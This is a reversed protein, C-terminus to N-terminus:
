SFALNESLHSRIRSQSDTLQRRNVNLLNMLEDPKKNQKVWLDFLARDQSPLDIYTQRLARQFPTQSLGTELEAKSAIYDKQSAQHRVAQIHKEPLKMYDAIDQDSPTRQLKEELENTARQIPKIDEAKGHPIRVINQYTNLEPALKRGLWNTLYTNIQSKEPSYNTELQKLAINNAMGKVVVRPVRMRGGTLGRGYVSRVTSEVIPEIADLLPETTHPGPDSRWARWLELDREARSLTM